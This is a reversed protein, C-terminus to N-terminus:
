QMNLGMFIISTRFPPSSFTQLFTEAVLPQGLLFIKRAIDDFIALICPHTTYIESM